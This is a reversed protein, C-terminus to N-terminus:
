LGLMGSANDQFVTAMRIYGSLTDLSKHRSHAAITTDSCGLMKAQTICGARLSHASLGTVDLGALRAARTVVIGVAEGSLRSGVLRGSKSCQRFIAGTPTNSWEKLEHLALVPCCVPSSGRVIGVVQGTSEQDTKSHRLTLRVGEPVFEVDKWDLAVLEGRRLAGAYGVLLLAADRIGTNHYRIEQVMAIIDATLLPRARKQATGITRRAGRLVARVGPHKTPDSVANERHLKALAAVERRVTSMRKTRVRHAIYLAITRPDAPMPCLSRDRCWRMFQARDTAYARDTAPSQDRAALDLVEQALQDAEAALEHEAIALADVKTPSPM